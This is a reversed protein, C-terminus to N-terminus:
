TVSGCEADWAERLRALPWGISVPDAMAHANWELTVARGYCQGSALIWVVKGTRDLYLANFSKLRWPRPVPGPSLMPGVRPQPVAQTRRADTNALMEGAHAVLELALLARRRRAAALVILCEALRVRWIVGGGGPGQGDVDVGRPRAQGVVRGPGRATGRAAGRAYVVREQRLAGCDDAELRESEEVTTYRNTLLSKQAPKGTRERRAAEDRAMDALFDPKDADAKRRAQYAAVFEPTAWRSM